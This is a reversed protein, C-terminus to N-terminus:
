AVCYRRFLIQSEDVDTSPARSDGSATSGLSLCPWPIFTPNQRGSWCLRAPAGLRLPARGLKHPRTTFVLWITGRERNGLVKKGTQLSREGKQLAQRKEYAMNEGECHREREALSQKRRIKEFIAFGCGFSAAQKLIPYHRIRSAREPFKGPYGFYGDQRQLSVFKDWYKCIIGLKNEQKAYFEYRQRRNPSFDPSIFCESNNRTSGFHGPFLKSIFVSQLLLSPPTCSYHM